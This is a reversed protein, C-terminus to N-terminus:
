EEEEKGEVKEDKASAKSGFDFTTLKLTVTLPVASEPDIVLGKRVTEDEKKEGEEPEESGRRRRSRRGGAEAAKNDKGGLIAALADTDRFFSIDDVTTFRDDTALANVVRVFAAPRALFKLEYSQEAFSPKKEEEQANRRNSRKTEAAPEVAAKEVVTVDLLEMVGSEALKEVMARVERWQRQLSALKASDPMSGGTIIDKFGFGFGEKVLVGNAAGPLKALERADAVMTQKFSEATVGAEVPADGHSALAYAEDRWAKVVAKNQDIADISAQVPAIKGNNIREVSGRSDELQESKETQESYADFALYGIVLCALLACGGIASMIIKNKNM